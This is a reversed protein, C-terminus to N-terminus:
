RDFYGWHVSGDPDWFSSYISDQSDYYSETDQETFNRQM